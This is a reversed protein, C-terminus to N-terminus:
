AHVPESICKLAEGSLKEDGNRVALDGLSVIGVLRKERNLVALRRVQHEEMVGAAEDVNQDDFCFHVHPTMVDRVCTERPSREDATARVTIDRDTVMGVLRDDECVPLAGVDLARMREAAHQTTAGPGICEVGQTMLDRVKM